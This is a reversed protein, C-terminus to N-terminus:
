FSFEDAIETKTFNVLDSGLSLGAWIKMYASIYTSFPIMNLHLNDYVSSSIYSVDSDTSIIFIPINKSHADACFDIFAKDTTNLTGSHYAKLIIAKVKDLCYSYDNGPSSEISLICPNKIYEIIGFSEKSDSKPYNITVSGDDYVAFPQENISYIDANYESHQLIHSAIHINVANENKNKYSVFVGNAINAKIFEIAAKFNLHGNTGFQELPYDASVFVIPLNCGSFAYEVATACYQLSDTGHTVIIGDFGKNLNDYIAKQLLNIEDSSLNESLISYPSQTFFEIDSNNKYPKLLEYQTTPDVDAWGENITSGITGGTFIVLIKM